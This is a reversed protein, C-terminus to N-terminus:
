TSPLVKVSEVLKHLIEEREEIARDVLALATADGESAVEAASGAM